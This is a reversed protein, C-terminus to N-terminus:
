PKLGSLLFLRVPSTVGELHGLMFVFEGGCRKNALEEVTM